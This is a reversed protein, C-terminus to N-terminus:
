FFPRLRCIVQYVLELEQLSKGQGPQTSPQNTKAINHHVVSIEVHIKVKIGSGCTNVQNEHQMIETVVAVSWAICIGCRVGKPRAHM